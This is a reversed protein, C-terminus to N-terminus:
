EVIIVNVIGSSQKIELNVNDGIKIKNIDIISFEEGNKKFIGLGNKFLEYTQEKGESKITISDGGKKVVVGGVRSIAAKKSDAVIEETKVESASEEKKVLEEELVDEVPSEKQIEKKVLNNTQSDKNVNKVILFAFLGSVVLGTIIIIILILNKNM